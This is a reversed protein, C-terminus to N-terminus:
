INLEGSELKRLQPNNHWKLLLLNKIYFTLQLKILFLYKLSDGCKTLFESKSASLHIKYKIDVEKQKAHQM